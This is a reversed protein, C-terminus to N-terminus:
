LLEIFAGSKYYSNGKRVLANARVLASMVRRADEKELETWDILDPVRVENSRSLGLLAERCFPLGLLIRRVEPVDVIVEEQQRVKSFEDYGMFRSEYLHDLFRAAYEVHCARVVLKSNGALTGAM